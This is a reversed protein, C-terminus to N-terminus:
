LGLWSAISANTADSAFRRSSGWTSNPAAAHLEELSGDIDSSGSTCFTIIKKGDLKGSELLTLIIRPAKGWWIPYGLYVTGYSSIDPINDVIAPRATGENQEVTARTSSDNYDLDTDTYPEQPEIRVPDVGLDAGIKEAIGWTNGTASFCLVCGNTLDAIIEADTEDIEDTANSSQEDEDPKDASSSNCGYLGLAGALCM